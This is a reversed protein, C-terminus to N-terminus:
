DPPPASIKVKPNVYLLIRDGTGTGSTPELECVKDDGCKPYFHDGVPGGPKVALEGTHGWGKLKQKAEVVTLGVLSELQDRVLRGPHTAVRYVNIQVMTYRKVTKGAPPDQCDIAGEMVRAPEECAVPRSSEIDQTFGAAKVIAAAEDPRKGVINPVVLDGSGGSTPATVNGDGSESSTTPAGGGGGGASFTSTGNVAPCGALVAICLLYRM